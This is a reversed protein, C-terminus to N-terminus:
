EKLNCGINLFRDMDPMNVWRVWMAQQCISTPDVWFWFYKFVHKLGDFQITWVNSDGQGNWNHNM